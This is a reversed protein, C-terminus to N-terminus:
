IIERDYWATKKPEEKITSIEETKEKKSGLIADIREDLALAWEKFNFEPDEVNPKTIPGIINEREGTVKAAKEEVKEVKQEVKEKTEAIDKPDQKSAEIEKEDKKGM